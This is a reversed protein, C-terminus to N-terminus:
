AKAYDPNGTKRATHDAEPGGAQFIIACLLIGAAVSVNLSDVIGGSLPIRVGIDCNKRVLRRMGKGEGGLVLAAPWPLGAGEGLTVEGEPDAAIAWYGAEKVASLARAMNTVRGLPVSEIAGAAAKAVTPTLDVASDKPWLAGGVGLAGATRLIAGLNRPDQIGDLLLIPPKGPPLNELLAKLSLIPTPHVEAALGQHQRSGALDDLGGSPCEEVSIGASEALERARAGPQGKRGSAIFLRKVRDPGRGLAALVAHVGCIIERGKKRAM